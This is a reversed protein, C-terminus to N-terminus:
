FLFDTNPQAWTSAHYVEDPAEGAENKSLISDTPIKRQQAQEGPTANQKNNAFSDALHFVLDEKGREVHM